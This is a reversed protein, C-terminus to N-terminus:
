QSNIISNAKTATENMAQAISESDKTLTEVTANMQELSASAEEIIAALESTSKQVDLTNLVVEKSFQETEVTNANIKQFMLKLQDFYHAVEKSSDLMSTVRQESSSMKELTTMNDNNVQDLNSTINEATQNTLEALKRIEEAVVSFGKGAEGARAAEISANLALLNTQGSIQKISDSFTNTEQIKKSLEIFTQNLDSIFSHIDQVDKNFLAVKAEGKTAVEKTQKTETTLESMLNQLKAMIEHSTQANETVRYIEESQFQSGTAVENIGVKMEAQARLNSQINENANTVGHLISSMDRQLEEKKVKQENANNETEVLLNKINSQQKNSLHILIFLIAGALIYTLIVTPATEKLTSVTPGQKSITLLLNLLGLTFGITFIKKDFPVVSLIALFFTVIVISWSGGTVYLGVVSFINVLIVTIYPFLREGKFFKTCSIFLLSFIALESGFFISGTSDKTVLAKVFALALSIAFVSYMLINKSKRDEMLMQQVQNM